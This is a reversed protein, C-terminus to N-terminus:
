KNGEVAKLAAKCIALPATDASPWDFHDKADLNHGRWKKEFICFWKNHEDSPGTISFVGHTHNKKMHEVIRWAFLIGTSYPVPSKVCPQTPRTQCHHCYGYNCRICRPGNHTDADMAFIDVSGDENKLWDHEPWEGFDKGPMLGMVKEAVLADLERGANM